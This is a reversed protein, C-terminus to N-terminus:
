HKLEIHLRPRFNCENSGTSFVKAISDKIIFTYASTGCCLFDQSTSGSFIFSDHLFRQLRILPLKQPAWPHLSANQHANFTLQADSSGHDDIRRM